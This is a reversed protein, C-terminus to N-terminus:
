LPLQPHLPVAPRTLRCQQAPVKQWQERGGLEDGNNNPPPSSLPKVTAPVSGAQRNGGIVQKYPLLPHRAGHPAEAPHRSRLAPLFWDIERECERIRRLREGEEKPDAVLSLLDNLQDCRICASDGDSQVAFALSQCESCGCVQTNSAHQRPVETQAEM